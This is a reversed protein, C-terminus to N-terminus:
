TSLHETVWDHRVRQSGMSQLRGPDETWPIRWAFISSHTVMSGSGPISGVDRIDGASAPLNKVVLAVQSAWKYLYWSVFTTATSQRVKVNSYQETYLQCDFIRRGTKIWHSWFPWLTKRYLSFMSYVSNQVDIYDTATFFTQKKLVSIVHSIIM